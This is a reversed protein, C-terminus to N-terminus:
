ASWSKDHYHVPIPESGKSLKEPGYIVVIVAAYIAFAAAYYPFAEVKFLVLSFNLFLHAISAIVLSGKTNNLAWTAMVSFSVGVLTYAGFSMTEFGLGTFWLPLHWLSWIIGLIVSAFLANMKTQLWPLAFGRWGLQEGTAGTVIGALLCVILFVPDGIEEAIPFSGHFVRYLGSGLFAVVVPSAAVLYWTINVKWKTWGKLLNIIGGKKKMIVGLVIFAAINPTWAGIILFPMVLLDAKLLGYNVAIAVGSLLWALAFSLIFFIILPRDGKQNKTKVSKM